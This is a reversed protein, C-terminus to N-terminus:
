GTVWQLSLGDESNRRGVNLVSTVNNKGDSRDDCEVQRSRRLPYYWLSVVVATIGSGSGLKRSTEVSCNDM